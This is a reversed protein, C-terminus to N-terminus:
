LRKTGIRMMAITTPMAIMTAVTKRATFNRYLFPVLSFGFCTCPLVRRSIPHVTSGASSRAIMATGVTAVM